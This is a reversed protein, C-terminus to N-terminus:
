SSYTSGPARSSKKTSTFIYLSNNKFSCTHELLCLEFYFTHIFSITYLKLAEKLTGGFVRRKWDPHLEDTHTPGQFTSLLKYVSCSWFTLEEPLAARELKCTVVGPHADDLVAACLCLFDHLQPDVNVADGVKFLSNLQFCCFDAQHYLTGEESPLKKETQKTQNRDQGRSLFATKRHGSFRVFWKRGFSSLHTNTKTHLATFSRRQNASAVYVPSARSNARFFVM